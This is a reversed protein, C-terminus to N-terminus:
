GMNIAEEYSLVLDIAWLEVIDRELDEKEASGYPVFECPLGARAWPSLQGATMVVIALNRSEAVETLRQAYYAIRDREPEQELRIGVVPKGEGFFAAASTGPLFPRREGGALLGTVIKGRAVGDVEVPQGTAKWSSLKGRDNM